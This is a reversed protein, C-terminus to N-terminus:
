GGPSVRSPSASTLLRTWPEVGLRTTGRRRGEPGGLPFDRNAAPPGSGISWRFFLLRGASALM